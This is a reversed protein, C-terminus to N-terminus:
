FFDGVDTSGTAASQWEDRYAEQNLYTSAHPIYRGRDRVWQDDSHKRACVDKIAQERDQESMKLWKREAIAKGKKNPFERWFDGFPPKVEGTTAAPKSAVMSRVVCPESLANNILCTKGDSSTILGKRTLSSIARYLKVETMSGASLIYDYDIRAQGDRDAMDALCVLTMKEALTLGQVKFAWNLREASM